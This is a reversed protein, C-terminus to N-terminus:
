MVSPKSPWEVSEPFTSQQPVDLLAQRYVALEQQHETTFSAWRLPNSVVEDVLTLKYDRERRIEAAKEEDTPADEVFESVEGYKGSVFDDFPEYGKNIAFPVEYSIESNNPIVQAIIATHEKNAWRLNKVEKFM